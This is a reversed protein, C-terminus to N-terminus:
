ISIPVTSEPGVQDDVAAFSVSVVEEDDLPLFVGAIFREAVESFAKLEEEPGFVVKRGVVVLQSHQDVAAVVADSPTSVFTAAGDAEPL